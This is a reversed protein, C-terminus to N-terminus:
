EAEGMPHPGRLRHLRRPGQQGTVLKASRHFVVALRGGKLWEDLRREKGSQDKLTFGPAKEGIAQAAADRKQEGGTRDGKQRANEKFFRVILAPAEAPYKHDGSHIFSVFPAGKDSPYLTCGKAWEHGTDQCGNIRRVVQMTREQGAFRVLQDNEGAIHMAPRPKLRLISRSGAASPAFAAFVDPREAWLLYTFAGGNSHGTAYVRDEDIKHKERLTKLVADFFKLDRDDHDGPDHQWGPRKGQPDTLRGPTPLGQMYVVIAEPWAEHLRFSRAAQRMSGGHGHFGFVVPAAADAQASPSYILAEREVGEIKWEERAPNDARGVTPLALVM